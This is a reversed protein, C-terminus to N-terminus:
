VDGIAVDWSHPSQYEKPVTVPNLHQDTLECCRTDHYLVVDNASALYHCYGNHHRGMAMM